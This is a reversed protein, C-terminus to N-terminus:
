DPVSTLVVPILIWLRFYRLWHRPVGLDVFKKRTVDDSFKAALMLGFWEVSGVGVDPVDAASCGGRWGYGRSMAVNPWIHGGGCFRRRSGLQRDYEPWSADNPSTDDVTYSRLIRREVKLPPRGLGFEAAYAQELV